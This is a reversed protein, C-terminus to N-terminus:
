DLTTTMCVSYPSRRYDGFPECDAFGASRYLSRAAAFEDMTGTELSVRTCGRSRALDLLYMLMARGIGRGRAAASTHMSKIEADTADLQRLAGVALLAGDHDRASFFSIDPACLGSVDLAHVDEPPSHEHAFDLHAALLRRVDPAQPDDPAISTTM